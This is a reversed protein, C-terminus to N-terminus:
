TGVEGGDTGVDAGGDEDKPPMFYKTWTPKCANLRLKLKTATNHSSFTDGSKNELKCIYRVLHKLEERKLRCLKSDNDVFKMYVQDAKEFLAAMGSDIKDEKKQREDEAAERAYKRALIMEESNYMMSGLFRFMGGASATKGSKALDRAREEMTEGRILPTMTPLDSDFM